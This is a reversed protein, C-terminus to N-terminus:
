FGLSTYAAGPSELAMTLTRQISHYVCNRDETAPAQFRGEYEMGSHTKQELTVLILFESFRVM